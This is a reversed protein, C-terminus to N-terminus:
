QTSLFVLRALAALGLCLAVAVALADKKKFGDRGRPALLGWKVLVRYAGIGTHAWVAPAFVLYFGIWAWGDQLRLANKRATIPMDALVTWVHISGMVLIAMGTAAQVVWFWTDAHRLRRAGALLARQRDTAFPIKRAALAFHALLLAFVLTGGVQALGSTEFFAALRDMPGPGVLVSSVFALHLVMFATLGLGSLMQLWDLLAPLRSPAASGHTVTSPLSM